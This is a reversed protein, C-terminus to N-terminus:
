GAEPLGQDVVRRASQVNAVAAYQDIYVRGDALEFLHVGKHTELHRAGDLDGPGIATDIIAKEPEAAAAQVAVPRSTGGRASKLEVVEDSAPKAAVAQMQVPPRRERVGGNALSGERRELEGPKDRQSQRAAVQRQTSGVRRSAGLELPVDVAAEVTAYTPQAPRQGLQRVTAPKGNAQARLDLPKGDAAEQSPAARRDGGGRPSRAADDAMAGDDAPALPEMAASRKPVARNSGGQDRIRQVIDPLLAPDRMTMHAERLRRFAEEGLPALEAVAARVAPDYEALMAFVKDPHPRPLDGYGGFQAIAQDEPVALRPLVYLAIVAFVSLFFGLAGWLLTSRGRGHAVLVAWIATFVSLLPLIVYVSSRCTLKARIAGLPGSWRSPSM